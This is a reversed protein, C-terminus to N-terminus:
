DKVGLREQWARLVEVADSSDVLDDASIVPPGPSAFQADSGCLVIVDPDATLTDSIQIEFGACGLFNAAFASRAKRKKVDGAELLLFRPTHGTRAAHRETRLRIQEFAIAARPV